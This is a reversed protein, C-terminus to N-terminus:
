SQHATLILHIMQEKLEDQLDMTDLTLLDNAIKNLATAIDNAVGQISEPLNRQERTKAEYIAITLVKEMLTQTKGELTLGQLFEVQDQTLEM